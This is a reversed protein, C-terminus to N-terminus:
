EEVEKIIGNETLSIYIEETDGQKKMEKICEIKQSVTLWEDMIEIIESKELQNLYSKFTSHVDNKTFKNVKYSKYNEQLFKRFGKLM